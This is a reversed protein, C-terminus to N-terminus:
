LYNCIAKGGYQSFSPLFQSGGTTFTQILLLTGYVNSTKFSLVILMLIINVEVLLGHQRFVVKNLKMQQEGGGKFPQINM